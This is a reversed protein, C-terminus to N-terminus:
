PNTWNQVQIFPNYLEAHITICLKNFVHGILKSDHM